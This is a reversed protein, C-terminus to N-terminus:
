GVAYKGPNEEVQDGVAELLTPGPSHTPVVDM